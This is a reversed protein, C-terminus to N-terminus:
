RLSPSVGPALGAELMPHEIIVPTIRSVIMRRFGRAIVASIARPPTTRCQHVGGTWLSPIVGM